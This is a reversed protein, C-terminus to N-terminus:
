ASCTMLEQCMSRRCRPSEGAFRVTVRPTVSVACTTTSPTSLSPFDDVLISESQTPQGTWGYVATGQQSVRQDMVVPALGLFAERKICRVRLFEGLASAAPLDLAALLDTLSAFAEDQDFVRGDPARFVDSM